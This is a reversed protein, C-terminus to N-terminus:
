GTGDKGVSEDVGRLGSARDEGARVTDRHPGLDGLLHNGCRGTRDDVIAPRRRPGCSRLLRMSVPGRLAIVIRSLRPVIFQSTGSRGDPRPASKKKTGPHCAARPGPIARLAADLDDETVPPSSMYTLCSPASRGRPRGRPPVRTRQTVPDDVAGQEVARLILVAPQLEMLQGRREGTRLGCDPERLGQPPPWPGPRAEIADCVNASAGIAAVARSVVRVGLVM